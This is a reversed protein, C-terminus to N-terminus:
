QIVRRERKLEVVNMETMFEPRKGGFNLFHFLPSLLSFFLSFESSARLIELSHELFINAKIPKAEM